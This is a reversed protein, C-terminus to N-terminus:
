LLSGDCENRSGQAGAPTNVLGGNEAPLAKVDVLGDVTRKPM